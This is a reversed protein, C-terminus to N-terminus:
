QKNNLKKYKEKNRQKEVKRQEMMEFIERTMWKQKAKKEKRPIVKEAGKVIADRFKWTAIKNM